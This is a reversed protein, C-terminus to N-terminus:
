AKKAVLGKLRNWGWLGAAQIRELYHVLVVFFGVFLAAGIAAQWPSLSKHFWDNLGIATISGYLVFMHLVYIVLTNQGIKLFLSDQRIRHGSHYDIFMLVSLAMSVMGLKRYISATSALHNWNDTLQSYLSFFPGAGFYLLAGGLAFLCPLWWTHMLHRQRYAICGIAGGFLTFGVFPFVPFLIVPKPTGYLPVNVWWWFQEVSSMRLPLERINPTFVFIALAATVLWVPLPIAKVCKSLAYLLLIAAIGCAICELIHFAYSQVVYGWIFLEAVRGIGKHLRPNEYWGDVSEDQRMLLYAFILGTVTLFMPATYLRIASWTAYVPHDPDRASNVLSDDVFHGELMLLIAVSRAMDIFRLRRPKTDTPTTM